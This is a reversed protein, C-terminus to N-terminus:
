DQRMYGPKCEVLISHPGRQSPMLDLKHSSMALDVGSRQFQASWGLRFAEENTSRSEGSASGDAKIDGLGSYQRVDDGFIGRVKGDGLFELRYSGASKVASYGRSPNGACEAVYTGRVVGKVGLWDMPVPWDIASAAASPPTSEPPPPATGNLREWCERAKKLGPEIIDRLYVNTAVRMTRILSPISDPHVGGKFVAAGFLGGAQQPTVLAVGDPFITLVHHEVEIKRKIEDLEVMEDRTRMALRVKEGETMTTPDCQARVTEAGALLALIALATGALAATRGMPELMSVEDVVLRRRV